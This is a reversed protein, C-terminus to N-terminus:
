PLRWAVALATLEARRVSAGVVLDGSIDAVAPEDGPQVGALLAEVRWEGTEASRWVTAISAGAADECSGAIRPGSIAHASTCAVADPPLPLTAVDFGADSATWVVARMGEDNESRGVIRGGEVDSATGHTSGALLPLRTVVWGDGDPLWVVPLPTTRDGTIGVIWGAADAASPYLGDPFGTTDLREFTLGPKRWVVPVVRRAGGGVPITVTGFFLPGPGVDIGGYSAEIERRPDILLVAEGDPGYAVPPLRSWGDPGFGERVALVWGPDAVGLPVDHEGECSGDPRERLCGIAPPPVADPGADPPLVVAGGLPRPVRQSTLDVTIWGLRNVSRASGGRIRMPAVLEPGAPTAVPATTTPAPTATPMGSTPIATPPPDPGGDGDGSSGCAGLALTALM